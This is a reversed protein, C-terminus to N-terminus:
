DADGIEDNTDTTGVRGGGFGVSADVPNGIDCNLSISFQFQPLQPPFGFDPLNVSFFFTPIGFGCIANGTEDTNSFGANVIDQDQEEPPPADKPPAAM